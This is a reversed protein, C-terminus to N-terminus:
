ARFVMIVVAGFVAIAAGAAKRRGLVEGLVVRALVITFVTSMQNLVAAVSADAWKFGGLWLLLSVYAGLVGAPVLTRWAPGPKFALLATRQKPVLGIWVLQSLAGAVLRILTVEPLSGRALVPKALIVGVGMAAIGVVGLFIGMRRGPPAEGVPVRPGGTSALLVGLVVAAAGVLFSGDIHEDLFLVSLVVIVPAYVTDVIALLGPGLRRLAMFILTDAFGIGLVGSAVLRLWDEAPRQFDMSQGAGVLTVALLVIGIANKFLNMGLPSIAESRRFLIVSLSWTLAAGLALAEGFL